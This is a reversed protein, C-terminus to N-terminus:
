LSHCSMDKNYNPVIESTLASLSNGCARPMTCFNQQSQQQTFGSMPTESSHDLIMEIYLQLNRSACTSPHLPCLRYPHLGACRCFCAGSESHCSVALSESLCPNQCFMSSLLVLSQSCCPCSVHFRSGGM